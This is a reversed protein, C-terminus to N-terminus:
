NFSLRSEICEGDPFGWSEVFVKGAIIQVNPLFIPVSFFFISDGILTHLQNGEEQRGSTLAGLAV